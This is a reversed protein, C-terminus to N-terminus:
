PVKGRNKGICYIVFCLGFWVSFFKRKNKIELYKFNMLFSFISIYLSIVNNDHTKVSHPQVVVSDLISPSCTNKANSEASIDSAASSCRFACVSYMFFCGSIVTVKCPRQSSRPVVSYLKASPANRAPLAACMIVALPISGIRM